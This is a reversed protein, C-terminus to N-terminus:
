RSAEPSHTSQDTEAVSQPTATRESSRALVHGDHCRCNCNFYAAQHGAAEFAMVLSDGRERDGVEVNVIQQSGTDLAEVAADEDTREPQLAEILMAEVTWDELAPPDGKAMAAPITENEYFYEALEPGEFARLQERADETFRNLLLFCDLVYEAAVQEYVAARDLTDPTAVIFATDLEDAKAALAAPGSECDIVTWKVSLQGPQHADDVINATEGRVRVTSRERLRDALLTAVTTKGVGSDGVVGVTQTTTSRERPQTVM